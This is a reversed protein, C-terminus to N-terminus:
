HMCDIDGIGGTEGDAVMVLRMVQRGQKLRVGHVEITTLQTWAGTDPIVIAESVVEGDSEIHFSGGQGDSAVPITVWYLGGEAVDVTYSVWEGERVWGIGYGNSADGREEIDIQTEGRYRAGHNVEDVDVYAVGPG